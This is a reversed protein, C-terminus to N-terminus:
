HLFFFDLCLMFSLDAFHLETVMWKTPRFGTIVIRYKMEGEAM